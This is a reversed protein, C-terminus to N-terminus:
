TERLIRRLHAFRIPPYIRRLRVGCPRVLMRTRLTRLTIKPHVDKRFLFSPAISLVERVERVDRSSFIPSTNLRVSEDM